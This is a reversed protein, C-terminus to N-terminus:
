KFFQPNVEVSQNHRELAEATLYGEGKQEPIKALQKTAQKKRPDADKAGVLGDIPQSVRSDQSFGAESPDEKVTPM